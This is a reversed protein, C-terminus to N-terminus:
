YLHVYSSACYYTIIFKLIDPNHSLLL